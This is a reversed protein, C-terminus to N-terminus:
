VINKCFVLRHTSSTILVLSIIGVVGAYYLVLKLMCTLMSNTTMESHTCVRMCLMKVEHFDREKSQTFSLLCHSYVHM